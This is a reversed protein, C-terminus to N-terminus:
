SGEVDWREQYIEKEAKIIRDFYSSAWRHLTEEHGVLQIVKKLCRKAETANRFGEWQIQAKLYLAHPWDPAGSLVEEIIELAEEYRGNAKSHRARELDATFADNQNRPKKFSGSLFNGFSSGAKEVFSAALIAPLICLLALLMFFRTSCFSTFMYIVLLSGIMM